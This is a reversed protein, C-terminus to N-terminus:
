KTEEDEKVEEFDVYEGENPGFVKERKEDQTYGREYKTQGTSSRSSARRFINKWGGFIGRIISGAVALLAFIVFLAIILLLYILGM